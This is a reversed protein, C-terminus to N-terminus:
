VVSVIAKEEQKEAKEQLLNGLQTFIRKMQNPNLKIAQQYTDLARDIDGMQLQIDGLNTYFNPDQYGLKTAKKCTSTAEELKNQKALALSLRTYLWGNNPALAIAKRYNVVALDLNNKKQLIDGLCRYYSGKSPQLKIAKNYATEAADLEGYEVLADGLLTYSEDDQPNLIVAQKYTLIAARLNNKEILIQGLSKYFDVWDPSLEIAKKYVIKAQDLKKQKQLVNGLEGYYTPNDPKLKIAKKLATSAQNFKSQNALEIGEFYYSNASGSTSKYLYIYESIYRAFTMHNTCFSQHKYVTTENSFKLNLHKIVSPYIPVQISDLVGRQPNKLSLEYDLGPLNLLNLIQNVVYIGLIDTPHNHNHFLYYDQYNDKIFSSVKISLQSECKALEGLTENLNNLLFEESYFDPDSLREIIEPVSKGEELMSIINTDGSPIVGYPHNPKIVQNVPNQCYQPFYGKFYLSPFSICQCNSPLKSLIDETSRDGHVNNVPQYIFLRAQKLVNAPITTEQPILRHVPFIKIRYEQNFHQSRSLYQAILENQFNAYILCLKKM